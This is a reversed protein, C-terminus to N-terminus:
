PTKKYRMASTRSIVRLAAIHGLDSTLEETMADAFYDQSPDGSLNTFPLVAISQINSPHTSFSRRHVLVAVIAASVVFLGLVLAPAM